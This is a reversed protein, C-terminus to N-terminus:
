AQTGKIVERALAPDDTIIMDVGHDRMDQIDDPSNVTWVNVRLKSQHARDVFRQNVFRYNPHVAHNFGGFGSPLWRPLPLGLLSPTEILHGVQLDPADQRLLHLSKWDFSSVLVRPELSHRRICTIVREVLERRRHRITKLEVNVLLKRGFQDFVEDLTPIRVDKFSPGLHTGIDLSKLTQLPLSEVKKNIGSLRKLNSDHFVILAGDASLQVDLEIGDAGISYAQEFASLTNEPALKSAGRHAFILTPNRYFEPFPLDYLTVIAVIM